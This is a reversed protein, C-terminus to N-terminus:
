RRQKEQGEAVSRLLKEFKGSENAYFPYPHSDGRPRYRWHKYMWMWLEPKQQIRAEFFDWVTQAIERVSSGPAIELPPHIEVRCTGDPLPESTIPILPAGTRQVLISHLYTACLKMGFTDIVTASQTPSLNLDILMGVWNGKVVQRLMRLMSMEQTLITQGTCSRLATFLDNLLPNQFAQTLANGRMQYLGCAISSWEFGASHTLLVICPKGMLAALHERGCLVVNREEGPQKLRPAWFLDLMTRAFYQYSRRAIREREAATYRDGFAAELNALTVARGRGDVRYAVAGALRSLAACVRRPLRPIVSSLAKVGLWELRYRIPKWRM